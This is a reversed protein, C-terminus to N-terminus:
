PWQSNSCGSTLGDVIPDPPGPPLLKEPMSTCVLYHIVFDWWTDAGQGVNEITIDVFPNKFSIVTSSQDFFTHVALRPHGDTEVTYICNAVENAAPGLFQPKLTGAFIDFFASSRQGAVAGGDLTVSEGPDLGACVSLSPILDLKSQLPYGPPLDVPNDVTIAVGRLAWSSQTLQLVGPLAGTMAAIPAQGVDLAALHPPVSRVGGSRSGAYAFGNGGSPLVVRWKLGEKAPINIAGFAWAPIWTCIGNFNVTLTGM